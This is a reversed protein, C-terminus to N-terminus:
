VHISTLSTSLSASPASSATKRRKSPTETGFGPADRKRIKRFDIFECYVWKWTSVQLFMILLMRDARHQGFNCAKEGSELSCLRCLCTYMGQVRLFVTPSCFFGNDGGVECSITINDNDMTAPITLTSNITGDETNDTVEVGRAMAQPTNGRDGDVFFQVSRGTANCHFIATTNLTANVPEPDVLIVTPLGSHIDDHAVSCFM